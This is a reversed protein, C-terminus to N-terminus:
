NSPSATASSRTATSSAGSIASCTPDVEHVRAVTKQTETVFVRGDDEVFDPYSIRVDPRRRLPPGRAGVLPHTGDREVGGLVWAPNRGAYPGLRRPHVAEGGHNHFWYLYKGNAFKKM